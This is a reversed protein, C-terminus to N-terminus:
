KCDCVAVGAEDYKHKPTEGRYDSRTSPFKADEYIILKCSGAVKSSKLNNLWSPDNFARYEKELGSTGNSHFFVVDNPQIIGAAGQYNPQSYIMCQAYAANSVMALASAAAVTLALKKM